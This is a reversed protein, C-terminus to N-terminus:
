AIIEVGLVTGDNAYDINVLPSDSSVTKTELFAPADALTVYIARVGDSTDISFNVPATSM